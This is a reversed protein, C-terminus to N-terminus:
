LCYRADYAPKNALGILPTVALPALRALTRVIRKTRKASTRGSVPLGHDQPSM